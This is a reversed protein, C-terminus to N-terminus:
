LENFLTQSKFFVQRKPDDSDLPQQLQALTPFNIVVSGGALEAMEKLDAYNPRVSPSLYFTLGDFLHKNAQKHQRARSLAERLSVCQYRTEFQSDSKAEYLYEGASSSDPTLPDQFEGKSKSDIIWQKNLIYSCTSICKLLKATRELKDDVM